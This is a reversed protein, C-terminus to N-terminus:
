LKHTIGKTHALHILYCLVRTNHTTDYNKVNCDVSEGSMENYLDPLANHVAYSDIIVTEFVPYIHRHNEPIFTTWIRQGKPLANVTDQLMKNTRIPDNCYVNCFKWNKPSSSHCVWCCIIFLKNKLILNTILYYNNKDFQEKLKGFLLLLKTNKQITILTCTLRKSSIMKCFVIEIKNCSYIFCCFFLLLNVFICFCHTWFLTATYVVIKSRTPRNNM